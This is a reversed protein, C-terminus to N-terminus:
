GRAGVVGEHDTVPVVPEGGLLVREEGAGERGALVSLVGVLAGELVEGALELGGDGGEAAGGVEGDGGIALVHGEEGLRRLEVGGVGRGAVDVEDGRVAGGLGRGHVRGSGLAVDLTDEAGGGVGGEGGVALGERVQLHVVNGVLRVAILEVGGLHAGPLDGVVGRVPVAGGSGDRPACISLREVELGLVGTALLDEREGGGGVRVLLRLLEGGLTVDGRERRQRITAQQESVAGDDGRGPEVLEVLLVGDLGQELGVLDILLELTEVVILDILEPELAVGRLHVSPDNLGDVEVGLLLVGEGEEDVTTRLARPGVGPGSAPVGRDKGVLAVDGDSDVGSAGGAVPLLERVSDRVVPTTRRIIIQNLAEFMNGLVVLVNVGFVGNSSTGRITTIHDVPDLAVIEAALELRKHAVVAHEARKVLVSGILQEEHLMFEVTGKPLVTVVILTPVRRTVDLVPSRRLKHDVVIHVETKGDGSPQRQEIHQLRLTHRASEQVERILVMPHQVLLVRQHPM